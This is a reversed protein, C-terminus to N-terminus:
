VAALSGAAPAAGAVISSEGGSIGGAEDAIFNTAKCAAKFTGASAVTV